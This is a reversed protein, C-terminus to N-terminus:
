IYAYIHMCAHLYPCPTVWSLWYMCAHMCWQWIHPMYRVPVINPIHICTHAHMCALLHLSDSLLALARMHMLCWQSIHHMHRLSRLFYTLACACRCTRMCAHWIYAHMGLGGICVCIHVCVHIYTRICLRRPKSRNFRVLLGEWVRLYLVLMCVYM